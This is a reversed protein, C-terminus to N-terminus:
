HSYQLINLQDPNLNQGYTFGPHTKRFEQSRLHFVGQTAMQDNTLICKQLEALNIKGNMNLDNQRPETLGQRIAAPWPWQIGQRRDLSAFEGLGNDGDATFVALNPVIAPAQLFSTAYCQNLFTIIERSNNGKIAGAFEYDFLSEDEPLLMVSHIGDDVKSNKMFGHGAHIILTQDRPTTSNTSNALHHIVNSKNTSGNIVTEQLPFHDLFCDLEAAEKDTQIYNYLDGAPPTRGDFYLLTINEPPIALTRQLTDHWLVADIFFSPFNSRITNGGAIILANRNLNRKESGCLQSFDTSEIAFRAAVAAAAVVFSLKLFSRRNIISSAKECSTNM